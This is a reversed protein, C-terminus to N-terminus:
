PVAQGEVNPEDQTDGHKVELENQRDDALDGALDVFHDLTQHFWRHAQVAADDNIVLAGCGLCVLTNRPLHPLWTVDWTAAAFPGTAM